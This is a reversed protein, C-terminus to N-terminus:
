KGGQIKEFDWGDLLLLYCLIIPVIFIWSGTIMISLICLTGMSWYFGNLAKTKTYGDIVIKM